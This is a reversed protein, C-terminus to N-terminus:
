GEAVFLASEVLAEVPRTWDVAAVDGQDALPLLLEFQGAGLVGRVGYAVEAPFREGLDAAVGQLSWASPECLM